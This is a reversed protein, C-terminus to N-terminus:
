IVGKVTFHAMSSLTQLTIGLIYVGNLAVFFFVGQWERNRIGRCSRRFEICTFTALSWTQSSAANVEAVAARRKFIAIAAVYAQFPTQPLLQSSASILSSFRRKWQTPALPETFSFAKTLLEVPCAISHLPWPWETFRRVRFNFKATSMGKGFRWNRYASM